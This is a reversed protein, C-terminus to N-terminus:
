MITGEVDPKNKYYTKMIYVRVILALGYFASGVIMTKMNIDKGLIYNPLAYRITAFVLFAVSWINLTDRTDM